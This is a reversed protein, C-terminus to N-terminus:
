VPGPQCRESVWACLEEAYQIKDLDNFLEHYGGDFLRLTKDQSEVRQFLTRSGEYDTLRDSTGHLILLPDVITHQVRQFADIARAIAAGTRANMLGTHRLPDRQISELVTADRSVWRYDVKQVPLWPVAAGLVDGLKVLLPSVKDPIKLLGSSFILGSIQPKYEIAYLGLILAGLSHGFLLLPNGAGDCQITELFRHTDNVTVDLSEIHGRKGPSLGHGRQDFSHVAFGAACLSGALEEFCAAHHGYGHIIAVARHV